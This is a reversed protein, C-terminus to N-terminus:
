LLDKYYLCKKLGKLTPSLPDRLYEKVIKWPLIAKVVGTSSEPTEISMFIVLEKSTSSFIKDCGGRGDNNSYQFTWSYDNCYNFTKHSCSKVHISSLGSDVTHYPLDVDWGKEKGERVLFDPAIWPYGYVTKMCVAALYEGKKALFQDERAKVSQVNRKESYYQISQNKKAMESCFNDIGRNVDFNEADVLSIQIDKIELM